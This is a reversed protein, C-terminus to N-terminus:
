GAAKNEKGDPKKEKDKDVPKETINPIKGAKILEDYSKGDVKKGEEKGDIKQKQEKVKKLAKKFLPIMKKKEYEKHEGAQKKTKFTSSIKESKLHEYFLKGFENRETKPKGKVHCANCSVKMKPYQKELEKKFGVHAQVPLGLFLGIAIVLLCTNKKVM